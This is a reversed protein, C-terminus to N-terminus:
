LFPIKVFEVPEQYRIFTQQTFVLYVCRHQQPEQEMMYGVNTLAQEHKHEATGKSHFSTASAKPSANNALM